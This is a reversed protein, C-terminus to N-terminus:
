NEDREGAILATQADVDGIVRADREAFGRTRQIVFGAAVGIDEDFAGGVAHADDKFALAAGGVIAFRCTEGIGLAGGGEGAHAIVNDLYGILLDFVRLAKVVDGFEDM